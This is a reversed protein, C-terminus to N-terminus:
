KLVRSFNLTKIIDDDPPIELEVSETKGFPLFELRYAQLVQETTKVKIKLGGYLSDNIIPHGIYASHVRIQHTRGTELRFNVYASNKFREVVKMHTVSPKGDEDVCFKAPNKKNRAIPADITIEDENPNGTVVARYIRIATKTKIQNTLYEHAANTKAIMLLGSTNKDLRHLIGPRMYGNIDSLGNRGYKELLANVLTGTFEKTTPHTLMNKPKNVVLMTEDEYVIEIDINEPLIEPEDNEELLIEVVDGKAVCSSAKATKGNITVVGGNLFNKIGSRTIKEINQALFVDARTKTDEECVFVKKM